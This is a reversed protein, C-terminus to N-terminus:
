RVSENRSRASSSITAEMNKVLNLNFPVHNWTNVIPKKTIEKAHTDQQTTKSCTLIKAQTFPSEYM